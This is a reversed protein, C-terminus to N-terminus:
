SLLYTCLINMLTQKSNQMKKIFNVITEHFVGLAKYACKPKKENEINLFKFM